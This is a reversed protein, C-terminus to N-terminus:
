NDNPFIVGCLDIPSSFLVKWGKGKGWVTRASVLLGLHAHSKLLVYSVLKWVALWVAQLFLGVKHSRLDAEQM